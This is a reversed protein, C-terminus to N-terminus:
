TCSAALLFGSSQIVAPLSKLSRGNEEVEDLYFYDDVLKLYMTWELPQRGPGVEGTITVDYRGIPGLLPPNFTIRGNGLKIPWKPNTANIEYCAMFEGVRAIPGQDMVILHDRFQPHDASLKKWIPTAAVKKALALLSQRREKTRTDDEPTPPTIKDGNAVSALLKHDAQWEKLSAAHELLLRETDRRKAEQRNAEAEARDAEAAVQRQEAAMAEAKARAERQRALDAANQAGAYQARLSVTRSRVISLQQRLERAEPGPLLGLGSAADACGAGAKLVEEIKSPEYESLARGAFSTHPSNFESLAAALGQCSIEQGNLEVVPQRTLFEIPNEAARTSAFTFACVCATAIMSTLVLGNRSSM